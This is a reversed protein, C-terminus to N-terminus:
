VQQRFHQLLTDKDLFDTYRQYNLGKELLFQTLLIKVHALLQERKWPKEIFRDIAAENIANIADQYTALGTLVLKKTARFRADQNIEILFDIGTQGPMVHDAIILAIYDGEQDIEELLEKAEAASECAEIHMMEELEALDNVIANLVERQDEICVIYLNEM